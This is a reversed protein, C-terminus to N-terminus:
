YSSKSVVSSRFTLIESGKTLILLKWSDGFVSDTQIACRFCWIVVGFVANDYVSAEAHAGIITCIYELLWLGEYELCLVSGHENLPIPLANLKRDNSVYDLVLIVVATLSLSVFLFLKPPM